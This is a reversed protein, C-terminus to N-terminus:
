CFVSSQMRERLSFNEDRLVLRVEISTTVVLSLSCNHTNTNALGITNRDRFKRNTNEKEILNKYIFKEKLKYLRTHRRGKTNEVRIKM